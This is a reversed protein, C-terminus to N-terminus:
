NSAPSASAVTTTAGPFPTFTETKCTAQIGMYQSDPKNQQFHHKFMNVKRDYTVERMMDVKANYTIDDTLVIEDESVSVINQVTKCDGDCWKKAALDIHARFNYDEGAGGKKTWKTGQCSLDFQDAAFAPSGALLVLILLLRM